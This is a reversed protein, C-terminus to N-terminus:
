VEVVVEPNMVLICEVDWGYLDPPVDDGESGHQRANGFRTLWQGEETLYIVDWFERM